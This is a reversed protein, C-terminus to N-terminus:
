SVVHITYWLLSYWFCCRVVLLSLLLVSGVSLSDCSDYSDFDCCSKRVM